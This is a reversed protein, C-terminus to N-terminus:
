KGYDHRLGCLVVMRDDQEPKKVNAQAANVFKMWPQEKQQVAPYGKNDVNKFFIDTAENKLDKEISPAM